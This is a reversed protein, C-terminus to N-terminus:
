WSDLFRASVEWFTLKKKIRRLVDRLTRFTGFCGYIDWFMGLRGFIDWFGGSIDCFRQLVDWFAWFIIWFM